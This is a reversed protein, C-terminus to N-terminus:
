FMHSSWAPRPWAFLRDLAGLADPTGTLRGAAALRRAGGYAFVLSALLDVSLTVGPAEDTREVALREGDGSMRWTGDVSAVLPDLVRVVVDGRALTSRGGVIREVDLVRLWTTDGIETTVLLRPDEMADPLASGPDLRWCEVEGVLNRGLLWRLLAM